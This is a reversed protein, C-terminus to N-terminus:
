WDRIREHCTMCQKFIKNYANVAQKKNGDKYDQVIDDAHVTMKASQRKAYKYSYSELKDLYKEENKLPPEVSMANEKIENVGSEIMSLNNYLFGKQVLVMADELDKMDEIRDKETYEGAFILASLMAISLAIKMM